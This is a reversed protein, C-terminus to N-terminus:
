FYCHLTFALLSILLGILLPGWMDGIFLRGFRGSCDDLHQQIEPNAVNAFFVIKMKALIVRVDRM